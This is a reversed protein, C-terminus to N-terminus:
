NRRKTRRWTLLGGLSALAMMPYLGPEPVDAPIPGASLTAPSGIFPTGGNISFQGHLLGTDTVTYQGIGPGPTITTTGQSTQGPDLEFTLVNGGINASFTAVDFVFDFTGTLFPSNRNSLTVQFDGPLEIIAAVTTLAPTTYFTGNLDCSYGIIDNGSSITNSTETINTATFTQTYGLPLFPQPTSAQLTLQSGQFPDPSTSIFQAQTRSSLLLGATLCLLSLSSLVGRRASVPLVTM